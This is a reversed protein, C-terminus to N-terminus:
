RAKAETQNLASQYQQPNAYCSLEQLLRGVLKGTERVKFMYAFKKHTHLVTSCQYHQSQQERVWAM